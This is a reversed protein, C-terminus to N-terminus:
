GFDLPLRLPLEHWQHWACSFLWLAGLGPLSAVLALFVCFRNWARSSMSGTGLAPFCTVPALRPFAHLRHWARSSMYDTGLAHFCTVPALRPFVHLRHWARSYMCGTGLARFCTVPALRPFAVSALRPFFHLRRWACSFQLRHEARLLICSPYLAPFCKVLALRSFVHLMHCKTKTQNSM